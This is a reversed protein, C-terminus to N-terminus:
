LNLNEIIDMSLYKTKSIDFNNNLNYIKKINSYNNLYLKKELFSNQIPTFITKYRFIMSIIEHPLGLAYLVKWVPHTSLSLVKSM